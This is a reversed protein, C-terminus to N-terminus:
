LKEKKIELRVTFVHFKRYFKMYECAKMPHDNQKNEALFVMFGTTARSFQVNM